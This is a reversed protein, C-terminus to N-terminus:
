ESFDQGIADLHKDGSIPWYGDNYIQTNHEGWALSIPFNSNLVISVATRLGPSWTGIAGLPTEDWKKSSVIKSM